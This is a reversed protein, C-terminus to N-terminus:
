RVYYLISFLGRMWTSLTESIPKNIVSVNMDIYELISPDVNEPQNREADNGTNRKLYM